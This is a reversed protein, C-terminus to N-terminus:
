KKKKAAPKKAAAKKAAPKKAKPSAAKKATAVAGEIAAEAQGLSKKLLDSYAATLRSVKRSANKKHLVGKSAAKMVTSVADLVGQKVADGAQGDQILKYAKKLATRLDSKIATNRVTKRITQRARKKASQTNAM